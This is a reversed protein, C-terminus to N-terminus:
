GALHQNRISVPPQLVEAMIIAQKLGSKKRLMAQLSSGDLPMEGAVQSRASAPRRRKKTARPLGVPPMPTERVPVVLPPSGPMRSQAPQPRMQASRSRPAKASPIEPRSQAAPKPAAAQRPPPAQKTSPLGLEKRMSELIAKRAEKMIGGGESGTKLNARVSAPKEVTLGTLLDSKERLSVQSDPARQPVELTSTDKTLKEADLLTKREAQKKKKEKAAAIASIVYWAGGFLAILVEWGGMGVTYALWSHDPVRSEVM